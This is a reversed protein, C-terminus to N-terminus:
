GKKEERRNGKGIFAVHSYFWLSGEMGLVVMFTFSGHPTVPPLLTVRSWRHPRAQQGPAGERGGGCSGPCSPVYLDQKCMQRGGVEGPARQTYVM